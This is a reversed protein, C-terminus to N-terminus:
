FPMRELNKKIDLMAKQLQKEKQEERAKQQREQEEKEYDHFLELQEYSVEEKALREEKVHNTVLYM